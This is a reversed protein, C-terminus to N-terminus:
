KEQWPWEVGVRGRPDDEDKINIWSGDDDSGERGAEWGRGSAEASDVYGVVGRLQDLRRKGDSVAMKVGAPDIEDRNARYSRQVEEVSSARYVEDPICRLARLFGRYQRLVSQRHVFDKLSPVAGLASALRSARAGEAHVQAPRARTRTRTRTRPPVLRQGGGGAHREVHVRALGRGEGGVPARGSAKSLVAVTARCFTM